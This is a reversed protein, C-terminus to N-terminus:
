RFNLKERNWPPLLEVHTELIELLYYAGAEASLVRGWTSISERDLKKLRGKRLSQVLLDRLAPQNDRPFVGGVGSALVAGAAGCSDSCIVPTGCMLAESCVAGWGDHFSPLVLCDMESLVARIDGMPLQGVWHVEVRLNKAALEKLAAEQPGAGVITLDFDFNELQSLTELLMSVRKREILQGIYVFHFRRSECVRRQAVNSAEPMTLFYAFPFARKKPVGRKIVWETTRQGICLVGSLSRRRSIFLSRYVLRKVVGLWGTDDVTEMVAFQRFGNRALIRQVDSIHANARVGECFHISNIDAAHILDYIDSVTQVHHIAVGPVKPAIWGQARRDESMDMAVVCTVKHGMNSLSVALGSMHPSLILQWFWIDRSTEGHNTM